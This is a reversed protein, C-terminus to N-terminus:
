FLLYLYADHGCHAQWYNQDFKTLMKKFFEYLISPSTTNYYLQRKELGPILKEIPIEAILITKFFHSASVEQRKLGYTTGCILLLLFM